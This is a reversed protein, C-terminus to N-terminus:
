GRSDMSEISPNTAMVDQELEQRSPEEGQDTAAIRCDDRPINQTVVPIRMSADHRADLGTSAPNQEAPM